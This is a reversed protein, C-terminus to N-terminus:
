EDGTAHVGPHSIAGVLPLMVKRYTQGHSLQTPPEPLRGLGWDPLQRKYVDLHTYSVPTTKRMKRKLGAAARGDVKKNSSNRGDTQETSPTSINLKSASSRTGHSPGPTPEPHEDVPVPHQYDNPDNEDNDLSPELIDSEPPSNAELYEKFKNDNKVKERQKKQKHKWSKRQARLERPNLDKVLKVQGKEKRNKYKVKWKEKERLLLEPDAKIREQRRKEAERKKRLREEDSQKKKKNAPAM